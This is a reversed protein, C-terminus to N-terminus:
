PRAKVGVMCNPCISFDDNCALFNITLVFKGRKTRVPSLTTNCVM